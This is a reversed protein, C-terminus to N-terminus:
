NGNKDPEDHKPEQDLGPLEPPDAMMAILHVKEEEADAKQATDHEKGDVNEQECPNKRRVSQKPLIASLM